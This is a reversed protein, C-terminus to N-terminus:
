QGTLGASLDYGQPTFGRGICYYEFGLAKIAAPDYMNRGDFIIKGRMNKGASEWDIEGFEPWETVIVAADAGELAELPSEACVGERPLVARAAPMAIPDYASIEAQCDLLAQILPVSPAERIDDTFPKFALGLIAIKKGHINEGFRKLLMLQLIKKQKRNVRDVAGALSMDVGYSEGIAFLSTVDKPFCSGGYGCGANLFHPGIRRDSAIGKKVSAVDAGAADCLRAIENMFSIRMALMVNAAYKTIEASATDMFIIKEKSIFSSYLKEMAARAKESSAGVVVRDPNLFDELAAGEKLFEPNAVVEACAGVGRRRLRAGILKHLLRGTGVPVTSKTVVICDHDLCDGIEGAARTIHTMDAGGCNKAPTGVAIFCVEAESLGDRLEASFRLRGARRNELVLEALGPEYFPVVGGNLKDIREKDVDICWVDNGASAFCAGTVM